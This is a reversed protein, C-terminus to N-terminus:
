RASRLYLQTQNTARSVRQVRNIYVLLGTSEDYGLDNQEIANQLTIVAIVDYHTIGHGSASYKDSASWHQGDASVFNGEPDITWQKGSGAVSASAGYFTLRLGPRVWKPASATAPKPLLAARPGTQGGGLFETAAGGAQRSRSANNQGLIPGHSIYSRLARSRM